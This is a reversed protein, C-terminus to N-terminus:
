FANWNQFKVLRLIRSGGPSNDPYIWAAYHAGNAPNLRGGLGGGFSNLASFRLRGEVSYNTWTNNLYAFGYGFFPTNTGGKLAGGTWSWNGTQNNWPSLPGPDTARTFDDSFLVSASPTVVLTVTAPQGDATGDNAKYTFSDAGSFNTDSTYTF